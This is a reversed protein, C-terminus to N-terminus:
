TGRWRAQLPGSAGLVPDAIPLPTDAPNPAADGPTLTTALQGTPYAGVVKVSGPSVRRHSVGAPIIIADGAQIRVVPGTDGGFQVSGGGGYVGLVEHAAPHFHHFDFIGNRWAGRWQNADFREEFARPDPTPGLIQHYVLLPLRANNPIGPVPPILTATLLVDGWSENPKGVM